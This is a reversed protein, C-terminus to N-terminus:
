LARYGSVRYGLAIGVIQTCGTLKTDGEPQVPVTNVVGERILVNRTRLLRLCRTLFFFFFGPRRAARKEIVMGAENLDLSIRRAVRPNLVCLQYLLWSVYTSRTQLSM